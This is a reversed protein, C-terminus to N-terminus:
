PGMARPNFKGQRWEVEKYGDRGEGREAKGSRM